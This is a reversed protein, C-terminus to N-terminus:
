GEDHLRVAFSLTDDGGIPVLADINERELVELVHATCDAYKTETDFAFRDALHAPMNKERVKQPNTRSTHLYTGGARDITRVRSKNLPELWKARSAAEDAFDFNLLGAWGNRIGITEWGAAEAQGVVAKICPNLGPVDGGGTLIGIRM